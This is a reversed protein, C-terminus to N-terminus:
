KRLIGGKKNRKSKSKELERALKRQLEMRRQEETDANTNVVTTSDPRTCQEAVSLHDDSVPFLKRCAEELLKQAPSSLTLAYDQKRICDTSPFQSELHEEITSLSHMARDASSGKELKGTAYAKGLKKVTELLLRERNCSAELALALPLVLHRLVTSVAGRHASVRWSLRADDLACEFLLCLEVPSREVMKLKGGLCDRISGIIDLSTVSIHPNLSKLRNVADGVNLRELWIEKEFVVFTVGDGVSELKCGDCVCKVRADLLHVTIEDHHFVDM